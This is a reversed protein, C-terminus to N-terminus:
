LNASVSIVSDIIKMFNRDATSDTMSGVTYYYYKNASNYILKLTMSQHYWLNSVREECGPMILVPATMKELEVAYVLDMSDIRSTIFIFDYGRDLMFRQWEPWFQTEQLNGGCAYHDLVVAMTYPSDYYQPSNEILRKHLKMIEDINVLQVREESGRKILCGCGNSTLLILLLLATIEALRLSMRAIYKM